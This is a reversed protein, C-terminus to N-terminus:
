AAEGQADDILKHTIMSGIIACADTPLHYQVTSNFLVRYSAPFDEDGKWCAVLISVMPFVQYRFALDAFPVASGGLSVASQRFDEYRDEFFQAMKRSTYGQFAATYFSGDPLESFSIWVEEPISGKSEHFYYALLAQNLLGLPHNNEADRAIYDASSVVAEQDWIKLHFTGKGSDEAKYHAGTQAAIQYPDANQLASRIQVVREALPNRKESMIRGQKIRLNSGPNGGNM